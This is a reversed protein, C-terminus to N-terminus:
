STTIEIPHPLLPFIQLRKLKAHHLIRLPSHSQPRADMLSPEHTSGLPPPPVSHDLHPKSSPHSGSGTGQTHYSLGAMQKVNLRWLEATHTVSVQLCVFVIIGTKIVQNTLSATSYFLWFFFSRLIQDRTFSDHISWKQRLNKPPGKTGGSAKQQEAGWDVERGSQGGGGGKEM